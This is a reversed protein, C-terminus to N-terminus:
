PTPDMAQRYLARRARAARLREVREAQECAEGAALGARCARLARATAPEPAHAEGHEPACSALVAAALLWRTM